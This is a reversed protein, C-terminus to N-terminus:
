KCGEGPVYKESACGQEICLHHLRKRQEEGLELEEFDCFDRDFVVGRQETLFEFVPEKTLNIEVSWISGCDCCTKEVSEYDLDYSLKKHDCKLAKNYKEISAQRCTAECRQCKSKESFTEGCYECEYITRM